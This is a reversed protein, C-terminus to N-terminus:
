VAAGLAVQAREVAETQLEKFKRMLAAGTRMELLAEGDFCFFRRHPYDEPLKPTAFYALCLRAIEQTTARKRDWTLPSQEEEERYDITQLETGCDRLIWGFAWPNREALIKRDITLDRKYCLPLRHKKCAAVMLLWARQMRPSLNDSV